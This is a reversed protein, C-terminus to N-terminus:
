DRASIPLTPAGSLWAGQQGMGHVRVQAQRAQSPQFVEPEKYYGAYERGRKVIEKEHKSELYMGLTGLQLKESNKKEKIKVKSMTELTM